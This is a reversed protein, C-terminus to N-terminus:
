SEEAPNGVPWRKLDRVLFHLGEDRELQFLDGIAAILDSLRPYGYNRADFSAHNSIHAGVRSLKSWGDDQETKRIADRLLNLLQTDSRLEAQNVPETREAEDDLFLFRSCANVLAAPTKREGFGIVTKGESLLRTVLPTFDSDSTMLCFTDVQRTYLIDMADIAIAIDTANKGKTLDIQLMPQIAHDHLRSEWSKLQPNTWNGYARRITVKGHSALEAMVRGIASAPANDADILLVINGEQM